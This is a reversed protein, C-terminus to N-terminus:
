KPGTNYILFHSQNHARRLFTQFNSAPSCGPDTSVLASFETEWHTPQYTSPLLIFLLTYLIGYLGKGKPSIDANRVVCPPTATKQCTHLPPRCLFSFDILWPNLGLFCYREMPCEKARAKHREAQKHQERQGKKKKKKFACLSYLQETQLTEKRPGM